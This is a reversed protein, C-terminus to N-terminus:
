DASFNKLLSRRIILGWLPPLATIQRITLMIAIRFVLLLLLAVLPDLYCHNVSGWACAAHGVFLTCVSVRSWSAFFSFFIRHSAAFSVQQCQYRHSACPQTFLLSFSSPSLPLSPFLSHSLSLPSHPVRRDYILEDISWATRVNRPRLM